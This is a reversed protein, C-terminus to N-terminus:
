LRGALIELMALGEAVSNWDNTVIGTEIASMATRLLLISAGDGPTAFGAKRDIEDREANTKRAKQMLEEYNLEKEAVPLAEV